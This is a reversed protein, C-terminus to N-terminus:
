GEHIPVDTAHKAQGSFVILGQCVQPLGSFRMPIGRGDVDPNELGIPHFASLTLTWSEACRPLLYENRSKVSSGAASRRTQVRFREISQSRGVGPVSRRTIPRFHPLQNKRFETGIGNAPIAEGFDVSIQAVLLLSEPPQLFGIFFPRVPNGEHFDIRQPRIWTEAGQEM